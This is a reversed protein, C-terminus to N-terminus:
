SNGRTITFSTCAVTDGAGITTTGLNLDSGSAAVSLDMVFTATSDVVRAWTATGAVANTDSTIASATWVGSAAGAASPDSFTLEALKTTAVGGTAPRTGNYIRLLGAGAGADIATTIDDAQTTRLTTAYAVTM